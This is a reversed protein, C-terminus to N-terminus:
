KQFNLCLIEKFSQYSFFFTVLLLPMIMRFEFPGAIVSLGALSIIYCIIFAHFNISYSSILINRRFFTFYLVGLMSYLYMFSGVFTLLIFLTTKVQTQSLFLSQETHLPNDIMISHYDNSAYNRALQEHSLDPAYFIFNIVLNMFDNAFRSLHYIFPFRQSKCKLNSRLCESNIEETIMEFTLQQDVFSPPSQYEIDKLWWILYGISIENCSEYFSCNYPRKKYSTTPLGPYRNNFTPSLEKAKKIQAITIAVNPYHLSNTPIDSLASVMRPFSGDINDSLVSVGFNKYNRDIIVQATFMFLAIPILIFKILNIKNLSHNLYLIFTSIILYIPLIEERLFFTFTLTAFFIFASLCLFKKELEMSLLILALLCILLIPERTVFLWDSSFLIPNFFVLVLILLNELYSLKNYRSHIWFFFLIILSGHLFLFYSISFENLFALLLPFSPFKSLIYPSYINDSSLYFSAASLFLNDDIPAYRPIYDYQFYYFRLFLISIACIFFFSRNAKM